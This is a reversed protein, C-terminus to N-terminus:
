PYSPRSRSARARASLVFAYALLMCAVSVGMCLSVSSPTRDYLRGVFYAAVSGAIMQGAGVLSSGVGAIQPAPELSAAIANPFIIAHAFFYAYTCALFTALAVHGHTVIALATVACVAVALGFRLLPETGARRLFAINIQNAIMIMVANCALFLGYIQTPVGFVQTLIFPSGGLYSFLVASSAAAVLGYGLCLPNSLFRGANRAIQGPILARPDPAALTEHVALYATLWAGAGALALCAFVAHWGAAVVLFSGIVPAVLPAAAQTTLVGALARTGAQRGFRDRVIARVIVAGVSSGAGQLFRFAVLEEISTSLACGIAALTFVCLGALMVPRRGFRDSTPGLVLQGSALGLMFLSLTLQAQAPTAHLTTVLQPLAPLSM